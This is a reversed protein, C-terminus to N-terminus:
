SDSVVNNYLCLFYSLRLNLFCRAVPVFVPLILTFTKLVKLSQESGVVGDYAYVHSNRRGRADQCAGFAGRPSDGADWFIGGPM